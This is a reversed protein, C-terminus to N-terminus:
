FSLKATGLVVRGNFGFQNVEWPYRFRGGLDTTFDGKPDIEDPYTGLLNNVALGLTVGKMAQLSATFDFLTKASFTQDNTEDSAHQWTVEGFYTAALGLTVPNLNYSGGVIIKQNPGRRSFM